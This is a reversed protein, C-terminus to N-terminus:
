RKIKKIIRRFIEEMLQKATHRNLSKLNLIYDNFENELSDKYNSATNQKIIWDWYKAKYFNDNLSISGNHKRYYYLPRNVFYLKGVTWLQLYLDIDVARKYNPNCGKSKRYLDLKFTAFHTATNNKYLPIKKNYELDWTCLNLIKLNADCVYHTSYILSFDSKEIHEKIM